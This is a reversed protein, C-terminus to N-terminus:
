PWDGVMYGDSLRPKSYRARGRRRILNRRCTPCLLAQRGDDHWGVVPMLTVLETAADSQWADTPEPTRGAAGCGSCRKSM